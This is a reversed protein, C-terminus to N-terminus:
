RALLEGLHAGGIHSGAKATMGLLSFTVTGAKRADRALGRLKDDVPKVFELRACPPFCRFGARHGSDRRRQILSLDFCSGRIQRLEPKLLAEQRVMGAILSSGRSPKMPIPPMPLRM